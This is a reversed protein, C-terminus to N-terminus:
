TEVANCQSMLASLLTSDGKGESLCLLHVSVQSEVLRIISPSFFLCEDDPHATVVLARLDDRVSLAAERSKLVSMLSDAFRRRHRWYVCKILVLYVLVVSVVLYVSMTIDTVM